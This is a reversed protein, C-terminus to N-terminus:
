GRAHPTAPAVVVPLRLSSSGLGTFPSGDRQEADIELDYSGPSDPTTLVVSQRLSEGALVDRSLQLSQQRAPSAERGAAPWWRAVLEVATPPPQATPIPSTAMLGGEPSRLRLARQFEAKGAQPPPVFVPWDSEGLNSITLELPVFSLV